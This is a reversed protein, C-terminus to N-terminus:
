NNIVIRKQTTAYQAPVTDNPFTRLFAALADYDLQPPENFLRCSKLVDTYTSSQILYDTAAFTYTKDAQIPEYTGDGNQIVVGSVVHSSQDVAFSLGSVQLFSGDLNPLHAVSRSLVQLVQAGTIEGKCLANGFPAMNIADGYTVPGISISNRIGGGNVFGLDAQMAARFADAMLDGANMEQRRVILTGEADSNMLKYPSHCLVESTTQSVKTQVDSVTNAVRSDNHTINKLSVLETSLRGDPSILLKGVHAFKTGTEATLVKRGDSASVWVNSFVSHTHGDLLADIDKTQAILARSNVGTEQELEGLHSLVVVYDAGESRAKEAAAQVLSYVENTKLDYLQQGNDDFFAYSESFQSDPTVTGVFAIKKKGFTKILYPAYLPTDTGTAFFNTCVVPANLQSLLETMRPVKYDFEHNGLTVADYNMTNMIDIIYQGRSLSAALGGQLFDGSSVVATYATDAIANRLGAMKPYGDIASHVDNEFLIVISKEHPPTIVTEDCSSCSTLGMLLACMFWNNKKM